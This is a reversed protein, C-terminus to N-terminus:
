DRRYVRFFFIYKRLKKNLMCYSGVDRLKYGLEIDEFCIVEFDVNMM